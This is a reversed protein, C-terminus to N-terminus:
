AALSVRSITAYSLHFRRRFARSAENQTAGYQQVLELITAANDAAIDAQTRVRPKAGRKQQLAAVAQTLSVPPAATNSGTM